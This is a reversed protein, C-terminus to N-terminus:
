ALGRRVALAVAETRANVGLKAFLNAVHTQVTRAGISLAAAIEKDSLGQVLLRLVDRERPTLGLAAAVDMPPQPPDAARAIAMAADVAEALTLAHGAEWAAGFAQDGLRARLEASIDETHAALASRRIGCGAEAAAVAGLLRAGREPQGTAMALGAVSGVMGMVIRGDSAQEAAALGEAFLRGALGFEGRLLAAHARYALTEAFSWSYGCARHIAIADDLLPVADAVEGSLLLNDGMEGLVTATWLPLAAERMLALAMSYADAARTRDGFDGWAFGVRFYAQGLAIPDGLNQALSLAEEAYAISAPGDAIDFAMYAGLGLAQERVANPMDRAQLGSELWRLVEAQYPRAFWYEDVSTLLRLRNPADGTADLWALAVRVNDLEADLRAFLAAQDRGARLDRGCAAAWELLWAAHRERIVADEGGAALQELAFERVTELMAFRPDSFPGEVLRLLSKDILSAVADLADLGVDARGGAVAAAAALTFGGSFVALRRFFAQEDVTLLDYSWAITARMTQQRAPLDRDGGTLLSLRAAMRALLAAPPLAKIRAAALEIALPLGDLRQCIEAIAVANAPTLAFGPQVSEARAVFLQVAPAADLQAIDRLAPPAALRLPAVPFEREGSIRLRVRSTVLITLGPCNALLDAVVLAAEVVQEFNDLVLLFREDRLIARLRTALPEEGAEHVGLAAIVAAPVLTPDAISALPVYAIGDAFQDQVAAAASLALRTKGVGGPGTVTLLPVDDRVLLAGLAVREGDRGILSARPRPLSSRRHAFRPAAM